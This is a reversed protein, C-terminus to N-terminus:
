HPSGSHEHKFHIRYLTGCFAAAGAIGAVILGRSLVLARSVPEHAFALWTSYFNVALIFFALSALAAVALSIIVRKFIRVGNRAEPRESKAEQREKDWGNPITRQAM